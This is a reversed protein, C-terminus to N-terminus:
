LVPYTSFQPKRSLFRGRGPAASCEGGEVIVEGRSLVVEPWGNVDLGEYPTWDVREHLTAKSLTMQRQPNFVVLDADHGIAIDGKAPLGALRAPGTCCLEVWRNLSFLGRVVGQYVGALRMEISPVGGPIRSFDGLGRAKDARTFPCHDTSVIQLDGRALAQWLAEQDAHPRLPPSCVPLCGEVGPGDYADQTLFLYQPCTEGSIPLGRRRAGSIRDAAASCSVHFVHLPVGVYDALDIVRGVAEGEMLAPRSRSHWHPSTRGAALNRAVLTTIVDWNEAHIVPLGGVGKIAEFAQMLQGDHLRFDYATYLKFSGCGAEYAGPIQELKAIESPGITMHLGYDIVVQPDADARRAALAALLSEQREPEVFDVVTTTGGLAAARTGSYFTDSSMVGDGAPMQMHVHIDVGGPIVYRDSADITRAGVLNAGIAAIRTGEVGIDARFTAQVTVITGSAIVLDFM